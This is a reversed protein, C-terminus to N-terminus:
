DGNLEKHKREHKRLNSSDSCRYDCVKCAYPKEGTHLREHKKMATSSQFKKDCHSCQFKYIRFAGDHRKLHTRLDGPTKFTKECDEKTCKFERQEGHRHMHEKLGGELEFRAGCVTCCFTKEPIIGQHVKKEHSKLSSAYNFSQGCLHCTHVERETSHRIKKHAVVASQQRFARNCIDCSYPKEGTHTSLHNKLGNKQAFKYTCGEYPCQFPKEGTHKRMHIKLTGSQSCTFECQDCKIRHRDPGHVRKEHSKVALPSGFMKTCFSCGFPTEWEGNEKKEKELHRNEHEKLNQKNKFQKGCKSCSIPEKIKIKLKKGKQRTLNGAKNLKYENKGIGIIIEEQTEPLDGLGWEDEEEKYVPMEDLETKVFPYEDPQTSDNDYATPQYYDMPCDEPESKVRIDPQDTGEEIKPIIQGHQPDSPEIDHPSNESVTELKPDITNQSYNEEIKTELYNNIPDYTDFKVDKQLGEQDVLATLREKEKMEKLSKKEKELNERAADIIEKGAESVRDLKQRVFPLELGEGHVKMHKKMNSRNNGKIHCVPCEYPMEGTHIRMHNRMATKETFGKGCTECQYPREGTHVREHKRLDNASQFKAGCTTCVKKKEPIIGLHLNEHTKLSSAASFRKYCISCEFPKEGTHSRKHQTLDHKSHFTSGCDECMHKRMQLKVQKRVQPDTHHELIHRQLSTQARFRKDCEKCPFPLEGTHKRYHTEMNGKQKFKQNCGEWPCGFPKEGTSKKIKKVSSEKDSIQSAKVNNGSTLSEKVKYEKYKRKRQSKPTKIETEQSNGPGCIQSVNESQKYIEATGVEPALEEKLEPPFKEATTCVQDKEVEQESSNEQEPHSPLSM